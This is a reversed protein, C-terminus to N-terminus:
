ASKTIATIAATYDAVLVIGAKNATPVKVQAMKRFDVRWGDVEAKRTFEIELTGGVFVDALTNDAVLIEKAGVKSSPIIRLQGLMGTLQNYIYNGATDKIGKLSALVDFPVIAVNANFGAKAVQAACALLVDAVTPADYKEAATFATSGSAKLGYIENQKNTDNGLGNFVLSDVEALLLADVKNTAYDVLFDFWEELESSVMIYTALKAMKRQKETFSVTTENGNNSLEGVYGITKGETAEIWALRAANVPRAGFAVIFANGLVPVGYVTSDANVAYATGNPNASGGPIVAKISVSFKEGNGAKAMFSKIEEKKSELDAKIRAKVDMPAEAMQKRLTEITNEQEKVSKDLNSIQEKMSSKEDQLSKVEQKAQELDAKFQMAMEKAEM